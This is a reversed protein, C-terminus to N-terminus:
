KKKLSVTYLIVPEKGPNTLSYPAKAAPQERVEGTKWTTNEKKGDAYTRILAGGKLARTVRHGPQTNPTVSGPPYVTEVVRFTDSDSLVKQIREPAKKEAKKDQAMAYGSVLLSLSLAGALVMKM